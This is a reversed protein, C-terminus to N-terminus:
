LNASCNLLIQLEPKRKHTSLRNPIKFEKAELLDKVTLLQMKDYNTGDITVQGADTIEALM